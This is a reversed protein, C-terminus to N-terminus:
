PDAEPNTTSLEDAHENNTEDWVQVTSGQKKYFFIIYMNVFYGIILRKYRM